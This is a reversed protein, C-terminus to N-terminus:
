DCLLEFYSRESADILDKSSALSALLEKKSKERVESPRSVMMEDVQEEDRSIKDMEEVLQAIRKQLQEDVVPHNFNTGFKKNIKEIVRHPKTITETFDSIVVRDKYKQLAQFFLKTYKLIYKPSVAPDRMMFSPITDKPNRVLVIVPLKRKVAVSVQSLFHYHSSVVVEPNTLKFYAVMFTNGSRQLGEIVLQTDREILRAQPKKKLKFLPYFLTNRGMEERIIFRINRLIHKM